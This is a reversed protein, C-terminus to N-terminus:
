NNEKVGYYCEHCISAVAGQGLPALEGDAGIFYLYDNTGCDKCICACSGGMTSPCEDPCINLM